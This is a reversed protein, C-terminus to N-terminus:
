KARMPSPVALQLNSRRRLLTPLRHMLQIWNPMAWCGKNPSVTVSGNFPVINPGISRLKRGQGIGRHIAKTTVMFATPKASWCHPVMEQEHGTLRQVMTEYVDFLDLGDVAVGPIGYAQARAAIDGGASAYKVSTSQAYRNNEVVFIAPLKWIAALNLGEHFTGENAGGDGFFSVAVAGSGQVQATLAAGCALPVGGGVIGNAGLMGRDIDAIHMSGGKGKCAGTVRGYLEAMMENVGVGKAICHGHGRHTSTISDADSLHACVGVAVAEEGAYLHVFGPIRGAAYEDHVRDEFKRITVMREYIELLKDRPIDM